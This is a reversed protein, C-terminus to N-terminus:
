LSFQFVYEAMRIFLANRSPRHDWGPPLERYTQTTAAKWLDGLRPDIAELERYLSPRIDGAEALSRLWRSLLLHVVCTPQAM